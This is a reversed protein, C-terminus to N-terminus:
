LSNELEEIRKLLEGKLEVNVINGDKFNDYFSPISMSGVINAGMRPFKNTAIEMVFKGGMVGPSTSLLLMPKNRWVNGEIRSLWDYTNKFAASYAGNHEALSIVFGDAKEFLENLEIAGRSFGQDSEIDVSFLPMEFNNLDVKTLNVNKLLSGAYEALVKNISNKSTSGGITIINKM